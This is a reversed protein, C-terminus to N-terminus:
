DTLLQLRMRRAGTSDGHSFFVKAIADGAVPNTVGSAYSWSYGDEDTELALLSADSVDTILIDADVASYAEIGVVDNGTAVIPFSVPVMATIATNLTPLDTGAGLDIPVSNTAVTGVTMGLRKGGVWYLDLKAGTTIGHSAAMTLTGTNADTRTTLSGVKAAPMDQEVSLLNTGTDTLVSSVAASGLRVSNSTTMTYPM